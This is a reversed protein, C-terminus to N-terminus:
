LINKIEENSIKNIKLLALELFVLGMSYLDSKYPDLEIISNNNSEKLFESIAPNIYEKEM